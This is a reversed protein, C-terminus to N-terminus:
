SLIFNKKRSTNSKIKWDQLNKERTPQKIINVKVPYSSLQIDELNKTPYRSIQTKKLLVFLKLLNEKFM